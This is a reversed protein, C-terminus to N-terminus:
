VQAAGAFPQHALIELLCIAPEGHCIITATRGWTKDGSRGGFFCALAPGLRVAYLDKLSVERLVDFDILIRGLPRDEAEIEHMVDSAMAQRDIWVVGYQVVQNDQTRRLLIERAYWHDDCLSRIVEVNVPCGHFSEVAETMHRDHDLLRTALAPLEASCCKTFEALESPHRYFHSLLDGVSAPCPKKDKVALAQEGSM